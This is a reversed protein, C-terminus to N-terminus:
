FRKKERVKMSRREQGNRVCTPYLRPEFEDEYQTAWSFSDTLELKDDYGDM